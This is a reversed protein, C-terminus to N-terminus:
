LFSSLKSFLYIGPRRGLPISYDSSGLFRSGLALDAKGSELPALLDGIYKPDHQGDGDILVCADFGREVAYLLGTQVAAGYGLNFPLRVVRAGAREALEGTNDTSGDDVVLVDYSANLLRVESVVSVINLAEDYAPIVLLTKM